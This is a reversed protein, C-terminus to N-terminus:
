SNRAVDVLSFIFDESCITFCLMQAIMLNWRGFSIEACDNFGNPMKRFHFDYHYGDKTKCIVEAILTGKSTESKRVKFIKENSFIEKAREFTVM